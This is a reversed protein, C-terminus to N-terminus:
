TVTDADVIAFSETEDIAEMRDYENVRKNENTDEDQQLTCKDYGRHKLSRRIASMSDYGQIVDCSTDTVDNNLPRDLADYPNEDDNDTLNADGSEEMEDYDSNLAIETYDCNSGGDVAVDVQLEDSRVFYYLFYIFIYICLYM